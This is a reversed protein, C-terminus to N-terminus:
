DRKTKVPGNPPSYGNRTVYGGGRETIKKHWQKTCNLREEQLPTRVKRKAQALHGLKDHEQEFRTVQKRTRASRPLHPVPELDDWRQRKQRRLIPSPSLPKSDERQPEQVPSDDEKEEKMIVDDDDVLSLEDVDREKDNVETFDNLSKTRQQTAGESSSTRPHDDHRM